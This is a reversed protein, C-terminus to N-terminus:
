SDRVPEFDDAPGTVTGWLASLEDDRSEHVLEIGALATGDEKAGVAEEMGSERSCITVSYVLFESDCEDALM